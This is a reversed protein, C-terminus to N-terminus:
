NPVNATQPFCFTIEKTDCWNRLWHVPIGLSYFQYKQLLRQYSRVSHHVYRSRVSENYYTRSLVYQLAFFNRAFRRGNGIFSTITIRVHAHPWHDWVTDDYLEQQSDYRSRLIRVSEIHIRSGTASVITTVIKKDPMLVGLIGSYLPFVFTM